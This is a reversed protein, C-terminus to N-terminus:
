ARKSSLLPWPTSSPFGLAQSLSVCTVPSVSSVMATLRLSSRTITRPVATMSYAPARSPVLPSVLRRVPERTSMNTPSDVISLRMAVPLACSSYEAAGLSPLVASRFTVLPSM